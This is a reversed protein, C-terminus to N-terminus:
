EVGKYLNTSKDFSFDYKTCVGNLSRNKDCYVTTVNQEKVDLLLIIDAEEEVAGSGKLHQIMPRQVDVGSRNIQHLVIMPTRLDGAIIKLKRVADTLKELETKGDGVVKNLQDIIVFKPRYQKVDKRIQMIDLSTQQKIYVNSHKYYDGYGKAKRTIQEKTLELSYILIKANKSNEMALKVAFTTKGVGPRAGVIVLYNEDIAVEQQMWQHNFEVLSKQAKNSRPLVDQMTEINEVETKDIVKIAQVLNEYLKDTTDEMDLSNLQMTLLRKKAEQKLRTYCELVYCQATPYEGFLDILEQAEKETLIKRRKLNLIAIVGCGNTIMKDLDAERLYKIVTFPIRNMDEENFDTCDPIMCPELMLGFILTLEDDTAKIM